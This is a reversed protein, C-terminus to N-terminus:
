DKWHICPFSNIEKLISWSTTTITDISYVAVTSCNASIISTAGISLVLISVYYILAM